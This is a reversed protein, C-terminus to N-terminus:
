KAHSEKVKSELAAFYEGAEEPIHKNDSIKVLHRLCQFISPRFKEMKKEGVLMLYSGLAKFARQLSVFQFEEEFDGGSKAKNQFYGLMEKRLDDAIPRYSDYLLSTLDYSAVGM